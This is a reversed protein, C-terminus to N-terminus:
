LGRPVAFGGVDFGGAVLTRHRHWFGGGNAQLGSGADPSTNGGDATLASGSVAELCEIHVYVGNEIYCVGSAPPAEHARSVPIWELFGGQGMHAAAVVWPVYRTQVDLVIGGGHYALFRYSCGCWPAGHVDCEAEMQDIVPGTNSNAPHEVINESALKHALALMGAAGRTERRAEAATAKHGNLVEAPSRLEPHEIVQQVRARSAHVSAGLLDGAKLEAHRTAPGYEGDEPIVMLSAHHRQLRVNITHQFAKVADGRM